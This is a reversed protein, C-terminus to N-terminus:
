SEGTFGILLKTETITIDDVFIITPCDINLDDIMVLFLLIALKTRQPVGEVIHCWESTIRGTKVRQYREILFSAIWLTLIKSVGM